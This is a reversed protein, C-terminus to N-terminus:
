VAQTALSRIIWTTTLRVDMTMAGALMALSYDLAHYAPISFRNLVHLVNLTIRSSMMIIATIMITTIGMFNLTVHMILLLIDM